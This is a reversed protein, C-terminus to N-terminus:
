GKRQPFLLKSNLMKTHFLDFKALWDTAFTQFELNNYNEAEQRLIQEFLYKFRDLQGKKINMPIHAKILAYSEQKHSHTAKM